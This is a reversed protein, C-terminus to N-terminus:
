PSLDQKECGLVAAGAARHAAPASAALPPRQRPEPAPPTALSPRRLAPRLRPQAADLSSLSGLFSLPVPQPMGPVESPRLKFSTYARPRGVADRRWHSTRAIARVTALYQRLIRDEDLSQVDALRAEIRAAIADQAAQRDGTLAPDLRAQFLAVLDEALAPHRQLTTEIYSQSFAFGLQRFYRALARLLAIALHRADPFPASLAFSLGAIVIGLVLLSLDLTSLRRPM